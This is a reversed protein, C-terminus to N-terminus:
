RRRLSGLRAKNDQWGYIALIGASVSGLVAPLAQLAASLDDWLILVPTIAGLLM